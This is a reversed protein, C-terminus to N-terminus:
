VYDIGLDSIRIDLDSNGTQIGGTPAADQQSPCGATAALDSRM